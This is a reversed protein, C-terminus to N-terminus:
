QAIVEGFEKGVSLSYGRLFESAALRRKGAAQLSLIQLIGQGCQVCIGDSQCSKLIKGHTIGLIVSNKAAKTTNEQNGHAKKASKQNNVDVVRADFIKISDEGYSTYASPWPNYAYVKRAILEASESWDIKGDNKTIKKVTTAEKENQPILIAKGAEIDDLAKIILDAGLISLRDHLSHFPEYKGIEIKDQLVIDGADMKKVTQMITVGAVTDGNLIAAQIPSSGRYKPLLSAHINYVPAIKLFEDSLIQGFAVTIMCDPKLEKIKELGESSVNEYQLVEISRSLAFEKVATPKLNGRKDKERDLQSVVALIKHKSEIIKKLPLVAFEPTGLYIIKM